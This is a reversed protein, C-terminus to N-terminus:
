CTHNVFTGPSFRHRVIFKIGEVTDHQIVPRNRGNDGRSRIIYELIKSYSRPHMGSIWFYHRFAWWLTAPLEQLRALFVMLLQRRLTLNGVANIGDVFVVLPRVFSVCRSAKTLTEIQFCFSWPLQRM